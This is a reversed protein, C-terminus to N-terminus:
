KCCSCDPTKKKIPTQRYTELFFVRYGEKELKSKIEDLSPSGYVIARRSNLVLNVDKVQPISKLLGKIREVCHECSMGEIFFEVSKEGSVQPNTKLFDQFKGKNYSLIFVFALLISSVIHIYGNVEVHGNHLSDSLGISFIGMRPFLPVLYDFTFGFVFASIIMTVVYVILARTGLFRKVVGVTALNTAPGSILFALAAGPTVGLHILGLAIPISATACVYIPIGILVAFLIQLSSNSLFKAILGPPIFTTVFGAIVVGFFLPKVIERPLTLFGYEFTDIILSKLNSRESVEDDKEEYKTDCSNNADDTEIKHFKEDNMFRLLLYYVTGGAIATVFAIIPRYIALPLGLLAYTALISDVGTQPTSLLFSLMAPVNAGQKRLSAMVPIVGCSCLPLPIGLIASKVIPSYNDGALHKQVWKQPIIKSLIGAALFGLLLYPSMQIYVDLTNKLYALM